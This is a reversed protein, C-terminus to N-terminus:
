SNELDKKMKEYEEDTIEGKAYREKLIALPSKGKQNPSKVFVFAVVSFVAIVIIWVLLGYFLGYPFPLIMQIPLIVILGVVIGIVILGIRKAKYGM